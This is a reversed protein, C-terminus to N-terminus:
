LLDPAAELTERLRRVAYGIEIREQELRLATRSLERHLEAEEPTLRTLEVQPREGGSGTLSRHAELTARDMLVSTVRSHHHRARDLIRLGDADIDGWYLVPSQQIWPVAFLGPLNYGAGGVAVAGSLDPLVQVTESNECVIVVRPQLGTAALAEPAMRSARPLGPREARAAPDLVVLDHFVPDPRLGLDTSGDGRAAGVLGEVVARHDKLWKTHMGPLPVQRIRLGSGPHVLLWAAARISLEADVQPMALWQARRRALAAAVRVVLEGHAGPLAPDSGPEEVSPGRRTAPGGGPTDITPVELAAVAADRRAALLAWEEEVAAGALGCLTGAGDAAFRVPVRQTGLQAWRREEWVAHEELREAAQWATIWAHAASPDALVEAGTPPHLPLAIRAASPDALWAATSRAWAKRLHERVQAPSRM